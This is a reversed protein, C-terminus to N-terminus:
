RRKRGAVEKEEILNAEAWRWFKVKHSHGDLNVVYSKLNNPDNNSRFLLSAAGADQLFTVDTEFVFNGATSESFLFNDGKGLANSYLGDARVEWVSSDYTLGELNTQFGTTTAAQNEAARSEVLDTTTPVSVALDDAPEAKDESVIATDTAPNLTAPSEFEAVEKGSTTTEVVPNEVEMAVEEAVITSTEPEVNTLKEGGQVVIQSKDVAVSSQETVNEEEAFVPQPGALAVMGAVLLSCGYVWQKGRKHMFWGTQQGDTRSHKM